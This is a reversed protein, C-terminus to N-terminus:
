GAYAKIARNIINKIYIRNKLINEQSVLKNIIKGVKQNKQGDVKINTISIAAQDFNYSFIFEINKVEKRFNRPTQFFKYIDDYNKIKINMRGDLILNNENLYILSNSIEFDASNNWIFQSNDIDILGEKIKFNLFLNILNQYPLLKEVNIKLGINLNKNNFVNTKLLQQLVSNNDLLYKSHIKKIKGVLDLYFPKLYIQGNYFFNNDNMKDTFEFSLEEKNIRFNIESKNKNNLIKILGKKSDEGYSYETEFLARLFKINIKSIIKKENKDNYIELFYPINFIENKVSLINQKKTIDYFYEMQKIKNILLIEDLDNKFFIYSDLIKVRSQSFDNNLLSFFFNLDEKHFSFKAESLFIEKIKLSKSSFFNSIELNIKLNKIEVFKKNNNNLVQVNEFKYNPLPLFNYKMDSSFIFNIDYRNLLQNKIQTQIKSKDYFTPLSLYTLILIVLLFSAAIVKKISIFQLITNRNKKFNLRNLNKLILNIILIRIKKFIKYLKSHKSM